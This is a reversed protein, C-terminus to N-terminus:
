PSKRRKDNAVFRKKKSRGDMKLCILMLVSPCNLILFFPKSDVNVDVDDNVDSLDLIM